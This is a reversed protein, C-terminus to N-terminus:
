KATLQKMKQEIEELKSMYERRLHEYVAETVKGEAKFTELRTLYERYQKAEENLRALESALYGTPLPMGIPTRPKTLEEIIRVVEVHGRERAIDLPTKGVNDRISPDAGHKLLLEVMDAHGAFAALHLPTLTEYIVNALPTPRDYIANPDAGNELLVKAVGVKGSIAALHLPTLGEDSRANVDAGHEVLLKATNVKDSLSMYSAVWHLPTLGEDSRANVDARNELLVNIIRSKGSTAAWHLPTIGKEDKANVDAGHKILLEAIYAGIDDEYLSAVYHLPTKHSDDKVNADAGRELLEKVKVVDGNKIAELLEKSLDV